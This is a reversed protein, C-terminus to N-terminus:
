KTLARMINIVGKASNKVIVFAGVTALVSAVYGFIVLTRYSVGMIEPLDEKEITVKM